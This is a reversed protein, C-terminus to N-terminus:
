SDLISRLEAIVSQDNGVLEIEDPSSAGLGIKVARVIQDQAFIKKQSIVNSGAAALVALAVADM